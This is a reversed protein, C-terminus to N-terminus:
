TESREVLRRDVAEGRLETRLVKGTASKPLSDVFIVSRPRQYPAMNESCHDVIDRETLARGERVVVYAVVTEEGRKGPVGIVAADAVDPHMMIVEEVARPSINFGGRIILDKKRDTIFFFGDEDRYGLDGTHFWGDANIAEATAEPNNWYGPTVTASRIVIEGTEGVPLERDNDDFITMEVGDAVPGISGEKFVGDRGNACVSSTTETLGYGEVINTDFVEMFERLVSLPLPAGGSVCFRLSKPMSTKRARAITLLHQYMSPIAPMITANNETIAHLLNQPSYQPVLVFCGGFNMCAVLANALGYVHYLPLVGVALDEHTFPILSRAVTNCQFHFNRHTLTVGKPNGTTGSTYLIVAPSDPEVDVSEFTRSSKAMLESLQLTGVARASNRGQRAARALQIGEGTAQDRDIKVDAGAIIGRCTSKQVILTDPVATTSLQYKGAIRGEAVAAGYAVVDAADGEPNYILRWTRQEAM